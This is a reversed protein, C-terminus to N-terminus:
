SIHACMPSSSLVTISESDLLALHSVVPFGSSIRWRLSEFQWLPMVRERLGCMHRGM